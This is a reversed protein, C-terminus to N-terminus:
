VVKPVDLLIRFVEILNDDTFVCLTSLEWGSVFYNLAIADSVLLMVDEATMPEVDGGPDGGLFKEEDVMAAFRQCLAWLRTQEPAPRDAVVKGSTDLQIVSKMCPGLGGGFRRVVPICWANGDALTMLEGAVAPRRQLYEPEPRADNQIGIYWLGDHAPTWTQNDPYWGVQTQDHQQMSRPLHTISGAKGDPGTRTSRGPLLIDDRFPFERPLDAKTKPPTGPFYYLFSGAM